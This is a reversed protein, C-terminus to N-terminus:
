WLSFANANIMYGLRIIQTLTQTVKKPAKQPILNTHIKLRISKIARSPISSIPLQQFMEEQNSNLTTSQPGNKCLYGASIGEGHVLIRSQRM